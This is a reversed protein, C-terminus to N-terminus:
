MISRGSLMGRKIIKSPIKCSLVTKISFLNGIERVSIKYTFKNGYGCLINNDDVNNSSKLYSAFGDKLTIIVVIM